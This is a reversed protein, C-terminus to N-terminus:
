EVKNVFSPLLNGSLIQLWLYPSPSVSVKIHARCKKFVSKLLMKRQVEPLHSQQPLERVKRGKM